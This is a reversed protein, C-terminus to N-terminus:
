QTLPVHVEVKTGKGPASTITCKGALHAAREQMNKLGWHGTKALGEELHFGRGDDSVSLKLSKGSYALEIRIEKAGAHRAANHAAEQAIRLLEEQNAPAWAVPEGTVNLTYRATAVPGVREIFESLAEALEQKESDSSRLNYVKSRAERFAADVQERIKDIQAATKEPAMAATKSIGHLQLSVGALSQLLTDHLDRAIRTREALRENYLLNMRVSMRRLRLRYLMWTLAGAALLCIAQFWRTQYYVPAVIFDLSAGVDNWVGDNNSAKVLFRHKGPSPDDYYAQRRAGPDQWDGDVGELKYRFQVKEPAIFSFATYDFQLNHTLKPVVMGQSATMIKGDAKVTEIRVPPPLPNRAPHADLNLYCLGESSAVWIRKGSTVIFKVAGTIGDNTGYHTLVPRYGPNSVAHDFERVDLTMLRGGGSLWISGDDGLMVQDLQLGAAVDAQQFRGDRFRALGGEGALWLDGNAGKVISRIAGGSLGEAPGYQRISGNDYVSVRGNAYATWMVGPGVAFLVEAPARPGSIREAKGASFRVIGHIDRIWVDGYGCALRAVASTVIQPPYSIRSGTWLGVRGLNVLWIAGDADECPLSAPPSIPLTEINGDPRIRQLPYGAMRVLIGGDHLATVNTILNKELVDVRHSVGEQFRDLGVDTGAWVEGERDELLCYVRNGSLGQETTFNEPNADLAAIKQDAIPERAAVRRLGDNEGAIWLAGHRDVMVANSRSNVEKGSAGPSIPRTSPRGAFWVTGDSSQALVRQRTLTVGVAVGPDFFYKAGRPLKLIRAETVLWLTGDRDFWVELSIETFHQLAESANRWHGDRFRFLGAPGTAAVMSGDTDEAVGNTPPLEQSSFTTVNGGSLRSVRGSRFVIWLSGDRTALMHRIRTGSLPEFRTFRVGDFSFLGQDTALWLPGDKTQALDLVAGFPLDGGSWKTHVLDSIKAPGDSAMLSAATFLIAVIPGRM